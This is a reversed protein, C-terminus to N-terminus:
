GRGGCCSDRGFRSRRGRCGGDTLLAVGARVTAVAAAIGVSGAGAAGAAAM